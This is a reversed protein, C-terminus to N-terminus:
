SSLLGAVLCLLREAGISLVADKRRSRILREFSGSLMKTIWRVYIEDSTKARLRCCPPKARGSLCYRGEILRGLWALKGTLLSVARLAECSLFNPKHECEAQSNFLIKVCADFYVIQVITPFQFTLRRFRERTSRVLKLLQLM